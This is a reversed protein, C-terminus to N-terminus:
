PWPSPPIRSAPSCAAGAVAAPTRGPPGSSRSAPRRWSRRLTKAAWPGSAANDLHFPIQAGMQGAAGFWNLGKLVEIVHEARVGYVERLQYTCGPCSTIIRDYRSFVEANRRRLEEAMDKAGIKLLPSGCCLAERSIDHAIGLSSLLSSVSVTINTLRGLGICGPFYLTSEGNEKWGSFETSVTRGFSSINEVM